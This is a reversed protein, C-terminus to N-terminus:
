NRFVFADISASLEQDTMAQLDEQTASAPTTDQASCPHGKGAKFCAPSGKIPVTPAHASAPQEDM